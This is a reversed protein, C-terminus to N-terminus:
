MSSPGALARTHQLLPKQEVAVVPLYGVVVTRNEGAVM